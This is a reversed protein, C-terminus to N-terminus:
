RPAARPLRIEVSTGRGVTSTITVTGDHQEVVQKVTPLGLGTGFSKTSFLPDFVKPLVDAAIGPGTDAIVICADDGAHTAVTIRREAGDANEEIAQAANDVLNVIASAFRDGDLRVTVGPADLRLELAIDEAIERGDLCARLWEDLRIVRRTLKRAHSYDILDSIIHDCRTVCREIRGLPRGYVLNSEGALGRLVHMSNRIASLPNRLEHAVTATLKGLTSLREKRLLEDQTARLEATREAVRRELDQNAAELARKAAEAEATACLLAEENRKRESIDEVTGEYYLLRGTSTRVERCTETIWIVSSDRRYVQAEFGHVVGHERMIAVFAGRRNPDVYLQGGIDTLKSLLQAPSDYGYIRALAPNATLYRGDATTQFVGWACNEFIDRYLHPAADDSVRPEILPRAVASADSSAM